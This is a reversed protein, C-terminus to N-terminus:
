VINWISILNVIIIIVNGVFMLFIVEKSNILEKELFEVRNKLYTNEVDIPIDSIEDFIVYERDKKTEM